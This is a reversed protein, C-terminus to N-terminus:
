VCRCGFAATGGLSGLASLPPGMRMSRAMQRGFPSSSTGNRDTALRTVEARPCALHECPWISPPNGARLGGLAYFMKSSHKKAMEAVKQGYVQDERKLARRAKLWRASVDKVGM